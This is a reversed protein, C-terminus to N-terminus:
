SNHAISSISHVYRFCLQGSEADGGHEPGPAEAQGEREQEGVGGTNVSINVLTLSLSQNVSKHSDM